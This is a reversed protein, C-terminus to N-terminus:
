THRALTERDIAERVVRRLDYGAEIVEVDETTLALSAILRM